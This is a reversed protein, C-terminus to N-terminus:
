KTVIEEMFGTQLNINLQVKCRQCQYKLSKDTPNYAIEVDEKGPIILKSEKATQEVGSYDLRIVDMDKLKVSIKRCDSDEIDFLRQRCKRCKVIRMKVEKRDVLALGDIPFARASM